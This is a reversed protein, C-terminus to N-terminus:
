LTLRYSDIDVCVCKKEEMVFFWRKKWNLSLNRSTSYIMKELSQFKYVMVMELLKPVSM